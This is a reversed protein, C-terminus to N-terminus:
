QSPRNLTAAGLTQGPLCGRILRADTADLSNKAPLIRRAWIAADEASKIDKLQEHTSRAPRSFAAGKPLTPLILTETGARKILTKKQWGHEKGDRTGGNSPPKKKEAQAPEPANLDPADLDDEGAIGALAFLAYRRAYTLAAGMRKPSAMDDPPVGALGVSGM